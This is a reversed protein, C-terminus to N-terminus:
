KHEKYSGRARWNNAAIKTHLGKLDVEEFPTLQIEFPLQTQDDDEFKTKTNKFISVFAEDEQSHSNQWTAMLEPISSFKGEIGEAHLFETLRSSDPLENNLLNQVEGINFSTFVKTGNRKVVFVLEDGIDLKDEAKKWSLADFVLRSRTLDKTSRIKEQLKNTLDIVSEDRGHHSMLEDLINARVMAEPLRFRYQPTKMNYKKALDEVSKSINQDSFFNEVIGWWGKFSSELAVGDGNLDRIDKSFQQFHSLAYFECGYSNFGTVEHMTKQALTAINPYLFSFHTDRALVLTRSMLSRTEHDELKYDNPPQELTAVDHLSATFVLQQDIVEDRRAADEIELPRAIDGGTVTERAIEYIYFIPWIEPFKQIMELCEVKSSPNQTFDHIDEEFLSLLSQLLGQDIKLKNMVILEEPLTIITGLNQILYRIIATKAFDLNNDDGTVLINARLSSVVFRNLNFKEEDSLGLVDAHRKMSDRIMASPGWLEDKANEVYRFSEPPQLQGNEIKLRNQPSPLGLTNPIQVTETNRFEGLPTLENM